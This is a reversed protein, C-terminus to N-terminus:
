RVPEARLFTQDATSPVVAPTGGPVASQLFLGVPEALNTGGRIQYIAGVTGNLRFRLFGGSVSLDSLAAPGGTVAASGLVTYAHIGNNSDLVFLRGGGFDAAGTGNGNANKIPLLEQDLLVPAASLDGLRSVLVNDPNDFSLGAILGAEADVAILGVSTPYLNGALNTRVVAAPVGPEFAVHVLSQGSATGWISNGAGFAVSLGLNGNALAAAEYVAVAGVAGDVIDVVAFSKHSRSALLLQTSDRSGRADISDGFRVGAPLGTVTLVSPSVEASDSEWRYIKLGTAGDSVLNAAYVAGDDAVAVMNIALTGGTIVNVGAEDTTKLLHREAGTAGDLVVIRNGGTRSVYLVNGSAPNYALGRQNNDQAVTAREGPLIRWLPTVVPTNVPERVTLLAPASTISQAPNSVIAAYTASAQVALNTLTLSSATASPVAVGNSTWQYALPRSGSAGVSLVVSSSSWVTVSAPQSTIVPPEVSRVVTYAVLGNNTDLAFVADQGIAVAGTGNLNAVFNTAVPSGAEDTFLTRPFTQVAGIALPDAPISIDYARLTHAATDVLALREAGPGVALPGMATPIAGSTYTGVTRFTGATLNWDCRLTSATGGGDAFFVNDNGFALGIWPANATFGATLVKPSFTTGDTTQFLVLYKGSRSLAGLLTNTGAGRVAFSDGFRADNGTAGAPLITDMTGEWAVTPVTETRASAWRYIKFPKSVALSLNAVYIAGDTGAGVLNMPFDGGSVLNAGSEDSTSLTRIPVGNAEDSGDSGTAGDLLVLRNGGLRSVLVVRDTVADYALGRELNNTGLYTRSLPALSWRPELRDAMAIGCSFAFMAALVLPWRGLSKTKPNM